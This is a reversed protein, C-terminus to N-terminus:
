GWGGSGKRPGQERGVLDKEGEGAVKQVSKSEQFSNQNRTIRGADTDSEAPPLLLLFYIAKILSM